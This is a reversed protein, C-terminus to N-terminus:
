NLILPVQRDDRHFLRQQHNEQLVEEARCCQPPWRQGQRVEQVAQLEEEGVGALGEDDAAPWGGEGDQIQSAGGTDGPVGQLRHIWGRQHRGAGVVDGAAERVRGADCLSQGVGKVDGGCQRCGRSHVRGFKWISDPASVLKRTFLCLKLLMSASTETFAGNQLFRALNTNGHVDQLVRAFSANSCSIKCIYLHQM